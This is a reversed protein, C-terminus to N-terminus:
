PEQGTEPNARRIKQIFGKVWSDYCDAEPIWKVQCDVAWAIRTFYFIGTVSPGVYEQPEVKLSELLAVLDLKAPAKMPFQWDIVKYGSETALINDGRLDGHAMAINEQFAKIVPQSFAWKELYNLEDARTEKFIGAEILERATQLIPGAFERWREITSLDRYCPLDGEIRAIADVLEKSTELAEAKRYERDRLLEGDIYDLLLITYGERDYLTEAKTLLPSRASAYFRAEVTPGTQSKYIYNDGSDTTLLQVCSLPWEHLTQRDRLGANLINQLEEDSHMKLNFYPHTEM